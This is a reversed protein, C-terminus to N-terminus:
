AQGWDGAFGEGYAMYECVLGEKLVFVVTLGPMAEFPGLLVEADALEAELNDTVFAVHPLDRVPGTVPSDAEYRLFEIKRPHAMPDTVWVKTEPVWTEGEQPDDTPLGFHHFKRM